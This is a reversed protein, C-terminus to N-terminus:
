EARERELDEMVVAVLEAPELKTMIADDILQEVAAEASHKPYYRNLARLQDDTVHVHLRKRFKM